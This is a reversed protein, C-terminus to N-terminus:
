IDNWLGLYDIAEDVQLRAEVEGASTIEYSLENAINALTINILNIAEEGLDLRDAVEILEEQIKAVLETLTINPLAGPGGVHKFVKNFWLFWASSALNRDKDVFSANQPGVLDKM